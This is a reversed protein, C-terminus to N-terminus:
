FIEANKIHTSAMTYKNNYLKCSQVELLNQWFEASAGPKFWLLRLLKQKRQTSIGRTSGFLFSINRSWFINLFLSTIKLWAWLNQALVALVLTKVKKDDMSYKFIERKKEGRTIFFGPYFVDKWYKERKVPVNKEM